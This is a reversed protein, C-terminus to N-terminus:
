EEPETRLTIDISVRVTIQMGSDVTQEGDTTVTGNWAYTVPGSLLEQLEARTYSITVETTGRPAVEVQRTTDGLTITGSVRVPFDNILTVTATGQRIRDVLEDVDSQDGLDFEEEGAVEQEDLRVVASDITVSQVHARARIVRTLDPVPPAAPDPDTAIAFRLRLGGSVTVPNRGFDLALTVPTGRDLDRDLKWSLLEREQGAGAGISVASLELEGARVPAFDLDHDLSLLVTGGSIRVSVVEPPLRWTQQRETAIAALPQGASCAPCLEELTWTVCLPEASVTISDAGSVVEGAVGAPECSVDPAGDAASGPALLRSGTGSATDDVLSIAGDPLLEEVGLTTEAATLAWRQEVIPLATPIDCGAILAGGAVAALLLAAAVGKLSGASNKFM